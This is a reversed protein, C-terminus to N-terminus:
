VLVCPGCSIQGRDARTLGAIIRLLTSKGSGSPGVLALLEGGRCELQATLPFPRHQEVAAKFDTGSDTM